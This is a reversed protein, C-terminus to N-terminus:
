VPLQRDVRTIFLGRVWMRHRRELQTDANVLVCSFLLCARFVDQSAGPAAPRQKWFPQQEEQTFWTETYSPSEVHEEGPELCSVDTVSSCPFAFVLWVSLRSHTFTYYSSRSYQPIFTALKVPEYNQKEPWDASTQRVTELSCAADFISPPFLTYKCLVREFWIFM